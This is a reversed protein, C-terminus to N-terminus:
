TIKTAIELTDLSSNVVAGINGSDGTSTIANNTVDRAADIMAKNATDEAASMAGVATNLDLVMKGWQSDGFIFGIFGTILSVALSIGFIILVIKINDADARFILMFILLIFSAVSIFAVVPFVFKSIMIAGALVVIGFIIYGVLEEREM